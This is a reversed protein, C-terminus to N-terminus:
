KKARRRSAAVARTATPRTPSSKSASPPLSVRQFFGWNGDAQITRHLEVFGLSLLATVAQGVHQVGDNQWLLDDMCVIGGLRVNAGFKSVDRIAQETHQGDIHLLDIAEPVTADDSKIREIAVRNKLGLRDIGSVFVQYIGDHNLHAWWNANEGTYGEASAAPSWPDIGIVIGHDIAECAMAIPLLSKGGYVGIEVSRTPRLAIVTAALDLAKQLPCWGPIRNETFEDVIRNIVHDHTM